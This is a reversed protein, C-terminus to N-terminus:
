LMVYWVLWALFLGAIALSAKTLLAALAMRHMYRNFQSM